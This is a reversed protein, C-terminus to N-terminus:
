FYKFYIDMFYHRIENPHQLNCAFINNFLYLKVTKKHCPPLTTICRGAFGHVDTRNRDKGRNLARTASNTSAVSKFDTTRFSTGTRTRGRAGLYTTSLITIFKKKSRKIFILSPTKEHKEWKKRLKLLERPM